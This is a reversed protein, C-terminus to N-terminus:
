KRKGTRVRRDQNRNEKGWQEAQRRIEKGRSRTHRRPRATERQIEIYKGINMLIGMSTMTVLLNSGGYSLFPLALGKTPALGFVVMLNLSIGIALMLTIGSALLTAYFDPARLAVRWGEWILLFFCLVILAAGIFGVEECIIAFIFDTCQETLFGRSQM